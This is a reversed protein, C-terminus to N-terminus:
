IRLKKKPFGTIIINTRNMRRQLINNEKELNSLRSNAAGDVVNIVEFCHKVDAKIQESNLDSGIASLENMKERLINLNTQLQEELKSKAEIFKQELKEELSTM